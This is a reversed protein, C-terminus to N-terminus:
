IANAGDGGHVVMRRGTAKAGHWCGTKARVGTRGSMRVARAAYYKRQEALIGKALEPRDYIMEFRERLGGKVSIRGEVQDVYTAFHLHDFAGDEEDSFVHVTSVQDSPGIPGARLAQYVGAMTDYFLPPAGARPIFHQHVLDFQATNRWPLPFKAMWGRMACRLGPGDIWMLCTHLREVHVTDTFEEHFEPEFRGALITECKPNRIEIKEHFVIDTDCIWFGPPSGAAGAQEILGSIWCDHSTPPLNYFRAGVRAAEAAVAATAEVALNNGWVCVDATPFGRRLTSFVLLAARLLEPKRVTALIHVVPKM